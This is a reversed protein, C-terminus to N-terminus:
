RDELLGRKLFRLGDGITYQYWLTFGDQDVDGYGYVKILLENEDLWKTGIIYVHHNGFITENNPMQKMFEEELDIRHKNDYAFFVIAKSFDSEAYDNILLKTGSPSWLVDVRRDYSYLKQIDGTVLDQLYLAHNGELSVTQEKTKSDVNILIHRGDPSLVRSTMGPFTTTVNGHVVTMPLCLTFSVVYCALIISISLLKSLMIRGVEMTEGVSLRRSKYAVMYRVM